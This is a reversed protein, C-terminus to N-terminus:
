LNLGSLSTPPHQKIHQPLLLTFTWGPKGSRPMPKRPQGFTPGERSAATLLGKKTRSDVRPFPGLLCAMGLSWAHPRTVHGEGQHYMRPCLQAGLELCVGQQPGQRKAEPSKSYFSAPLALVQCPERIDYGPIAQDQCITHSLCIWLQIQIYINYTHWRYTFM